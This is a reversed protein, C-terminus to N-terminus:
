PQVATTYVPIEPKVWHQSTFSRQFLYPPPGDGDFTLTEGVKKSFVFLAGDDSAAITQFQARDAVRELNYYPM